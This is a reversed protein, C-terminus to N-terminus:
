GRCAGTQGRLRRRTAPTTDSGRTARAPRPGGIAADHVYYVYVYPQGRSTRTCPSGELGQDWYDYVKTRLDAFQTPTTDSLSDFVKVIGSKEAVFVRGDAAVRVAMPQDLGELAM